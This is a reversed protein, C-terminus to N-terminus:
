SQVAREGMGISFRELVSITTQLEDTSIEALLRSRLEMLRADIRAALDRGQASLELRKTRRDETDTHRSVLGSSELQHLTRVLSAETIAMARALDSLKAEPGLRQLFVLTWGASSSINLGSLAENAYRAVARSLPALQTM